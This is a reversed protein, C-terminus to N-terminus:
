NNVMRQYPKQQQNVILLNLMAFVRQNVKQPRESVSKESRVVNVLSNVSQTKPQTSHYIESSFQKQNKVTQIEQHDAEQQDKEITPSKKM